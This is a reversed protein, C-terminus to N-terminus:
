GVGGSFRRYTALMSTIRHNDRIRVSGFAGFGAVGFTAERASKLNENALMVCAVKVPTPVTAWGWNATVEISPYGLYPFTYGRVGIIRSTPWGTQGNVVGNRPELRYSTAPVTTEFVGDNDADTKVVLGTSTHFDDVWFYYTDQPQYVRASVSGANNFQRGCFKEIERSAAALSDTIEQDITTETVKLYSKFEAVTAYSDGLAM